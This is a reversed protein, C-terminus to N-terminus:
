RPTDAREERADGTEEVGATTAVRRGGGWQCRLGLGGGDRRDRWREGLTVSRNITRMANVFINVLIDRQSVCLGDLTDTCMDAM